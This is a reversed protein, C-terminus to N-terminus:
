FPDLEHLTQALDVADLWESRVRFTSPEEGLNAPLEQQGPAVSQPSYLGGSSYEGYSLTAVNRSTIDTTAITEGLVNLKTLVDDDASADGWEDTNGEWNTFEIQWRRVKAGTGEYVQETFNDGGFVQEFFAIINGFSGGLVWIPEHSETINLNGKGVFSDGNPLDIQVYDQASM